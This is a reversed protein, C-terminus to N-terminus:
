YFNIGTTHCLKWDFLIESFTVQSFGMDPNVLAEFVLLRGLQIEFFFNSSRGHDRRRSRAERELRNILM